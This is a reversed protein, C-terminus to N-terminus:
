GRSSLSRNGECAGRLRADEPCSALARLRQRAIDALVNSCCRAMAPVMSDFFMEERTRGANHVLAAVEVQAAEDAVMDILAQSPQFRPDAWLDFLSQAQSCLEPGADRMMIERCRVDIPLMSSSLRGVYAPDGGSASDVQLLRAAEEEDKENGTLLLLRRAVEGPLNAHIDPEVPRSAIDKALSRLVVSTPRYDNGNLCTIWRFDNWLSQGLAVCEHIALAEFVSQALALPFGEIIAPIVAKCVAGCSHSTSLSM